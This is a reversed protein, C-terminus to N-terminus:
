AMYWAGFGSAGSILIGGIIVNRMDHLQKGDFLVKYGVWMICLTVTAVALSGLGIVWKNLGENAKQFGDDAALAQAAPLIGMSFTLCASKFKSNLESVLTM